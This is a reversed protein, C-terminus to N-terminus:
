DFIKLKNTNNSNDSRNPVYNQVYKIGVIERVRKACKELRNMEIQLESAISAREKEINHQLKTINHLKTHCSDCLGIVIEPFYSIHHQIFKKSSCFYCETIEKIKKKELNKRWKSQSKNTTNVKEGLYIKIIRIAHKEVISFEEIFPKMLQHRYKYKSYNNNLWELKERTKKSITPKKMRIVLILM